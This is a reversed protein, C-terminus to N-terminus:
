RESQSGALVSKRRKEAPSGTFPLPSTPPPIAVAKLAPYNSFEAQTEKLQSLLEKTVIWVAAKNKDEHRHISRDSPFVFRKYLALAHLLPALDLRDLEHALLTQAYGTVLGAQERELEARAEATELALEDRKPTSLELLFDIKKIKAAIIEKKEHQALVSEPPIYLGEFLTNIEQNATALDAQLAAKEKENSEIYQNVELLRADLTKVQSLTLHFQEAKEQQEPTLDPTDTFM